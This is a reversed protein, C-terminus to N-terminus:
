CKKFINDMDINSLYRWKGVELENLELKGIAIRKLELVPHGIVECMKRIQRNRGEHITIKVTTTNNDKSIIKIKAPATKKNDIVLGEEFKILKSKEPMGKIRAIYTKSMKHKPHTLKYAFEGDNTLILLGSTNYDLRGVPYIREPIDNLLDLVTLRAFQDKATTVYGCPKNLLIYVKKEEKSIVIDDVMVNDNSDISVGLKCVINGNVKVRGEQILEEAKRRSCYGCHAIYKQLRMKEM